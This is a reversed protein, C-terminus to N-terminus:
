ARKGAVQRDAVKALERMFANALREQDEPTTLERVAKEAADAAAAVVERRIQLELQETQRQVMIETEAKFRAVTDNAEASIRKRDREAAEAVDKRLKALESDLTKMRETYANFAEEANRKVASAEAISREISARRGNLFDALPKGGFRRILYVLLAFNVVSGWFHLSEEGTFIEKLTLPAHAHHEGGEGGEENAFAPAANSVTVLLALALFWRKM